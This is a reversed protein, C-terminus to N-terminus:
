NTYYHQGRINEHELPERKPKQPLAEQELGQALISKISHCSISGFHLARRAAMELREPSYKKRLNLVGLAARYGQEPYRKSELIAEILQAM